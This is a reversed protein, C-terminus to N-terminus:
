QASRVDGGTHVLSDPTVCESDCVTQGPMSSPHTLLRAINENDARFAAFAAPLAALAGLACTGESFEMRVALALM